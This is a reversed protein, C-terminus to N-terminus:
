EPPGEAPHGFLWGQGMEWGQQAIIQAQAETEIGEAVTELGLGGALGVLGQALRARTPDSTIDQTFSRDLKMGTIPLDRLHTISSYGTGFDDVWVSVGLRDLALLTQRVVDPDRMLSTETVELQLRGAAVGTRSLETRVHEALSPDCLSAASANVSIWMDPRSAIMELADSLVVRDLDVILDAHAAAPIFVDPGILDGDGTRWRALAEYGVVARSTLSVVPQYWARFQGAALGDRIASRIIVRDRAIQSMSSDQYELRNGGMSRAHHLATTAARLWEETGRGQVGGAIGISVTVDISHEGIRIPLSVAARVHEAVEELHEMRDDDVLMAFEDETIRALHERGVISELRNAIHAAVRDAATHTFADAVAGLEDIGVALLASGPPRDELSTLLGARNRLGTLPDHDIQHALRLRANMEAQIDHATEIFGTARGNGDRLPRGSIRMWKWAGLSTKLRVERNGPYAGGAAAHTLDEPHVFQMVRKGLLDKPAWGLADTVSPSVWVVRGDLGFEYIVDAANEALRRYRSQSEALEMEALHRHTVDRFSCILEDRVRVVRVDYYKVGATRRNADVPYNDEVLPRGTKFVELCLDFIDVDEPLFDRLSCGILADADIELHHSAALNAETFTFDTVAGRKDYAATLTVHPDFLNDLVARQREEGMAARRRETVLDHVDRLGGVLGAGDGVQTARGSFWRYHGSKTRVRLELGSVESLTDVTSTVRHRATRVMEADDPHILDIFDTGILEEPTWGLARMVTPAIWRVTHDPGSMFVVDSANEALLRFQEKAEEVLKETLRRETADRWSGVTGVIRGVEDRLPRVVSAIWVYHDDRHRARFEMATPAGQAVRRRTGEYSPRDDEHVFGSFDQGILQEPLWGLLAEISPSIWMVVGRADARFVVDSANEALLRYDEHSPDAPLQPAQRPVAHSVANSVGSTRLRAM